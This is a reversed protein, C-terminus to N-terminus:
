TLDILPADAAVRQVSAIGNKASAKSEYEGDSRCIIEGNGSKLLFTYRKSRPDQRLEFKGASM